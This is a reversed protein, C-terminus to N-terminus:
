IESRAVRSAANSPCGSASSCNVSGDGSRTRRSSTSPTHTRVSRHISLQRAARTVPPVPHNQPRVSPCRRRYEGRDPSALRLYNPTPTRVVVVVVVVVLPRRPGNSRARCACAGGVARRRCTAPAGAARSRPSAAVGSARRGRAMLWRVLAGSSRPPPPPLLTRATHWGVKARPLLEFCAKCRAKRRWRAACTRLM